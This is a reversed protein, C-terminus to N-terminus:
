EVISFPLSIVGSKDSAIDRTTYEVVYDGPPAGDVTLTLTLMFERNRARSTLELHQFNEQGGVIAGGATKLLLDVDFGFSYTGDDNEQWAYGVPEAYIVIPEGQAFNGDARENYVGYGAPDSAVFVATRYTLPTQEWAEIVAEEAAEIADLSQAASGGTLVMVAAVAMAPVFAHGYM